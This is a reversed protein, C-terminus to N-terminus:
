AGNCALQKIRFHLPWSRAVSNGPRAAARLSFVPLICCQRAGSNGPSAQEVQLGTHTFAHKGIGDHLVQQIGIEILQGHHLRHQVVVRVHFHLPLKTAAIAFVQARVQGLNALLDLLQAFQAQAVGLEDKKFVDTEHLRVEQAKEPQEAEVQAIHAGADLVIFQADAQAPGPQM